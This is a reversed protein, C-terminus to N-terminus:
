LNDLVYLMLLGLPPCLIACVCTLYALVGKM